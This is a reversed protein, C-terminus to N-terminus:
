RLVGLDDLIDGLSEGNRRRRNIETWDRNSLRRRLEWYHGLSTDYCRLDKSKLNQHRAIIGSLSKITKGIVAGGIPVVVCVAAKNDEWWRLAKQKRREWRRRLEEKRFDKTIDIVNNENDM